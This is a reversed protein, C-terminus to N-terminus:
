LSFILLSLHDSINYKYTSITKQILNYSKPAVYMSVVYIAVISPILVYLASFALKADSIGTNTLVILENEKKLTFYTYSISFSIIIPTIKTYVHSFSLIIVNVVYALSEGHDLFYVFKTLYAFYVTVISIAISILLFLLARTILYKQYIPIM